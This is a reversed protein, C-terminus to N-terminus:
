YLNLILNITLIYNSIKANDSRGHKTVCYFIFANGIHTNNNRFILKNM